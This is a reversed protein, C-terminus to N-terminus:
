RSGRGLPKASKSAARAPRTGAKPAAPKNAKGSAGRAAKAPLSAVYDRAKRLWGALRERDAFESQPLVLTSAMTRGNGMPDFPAGGLRALEALDNPALKVIATTAFLGAMMQGNLMAALGGFMKKTQIAADRPLAAEFIPFHETPIKVWGM